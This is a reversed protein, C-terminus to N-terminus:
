LYKAFVYEDQENPQHNIQESLFSQQHSIQQSFFTSNDPPQYAV